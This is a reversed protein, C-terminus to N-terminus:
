FMYLVRSPGAKLAGDEIAEASARAALVAAEAIVIYRQSNVTEQRIIRGQSIEDIFCNMVHRELDEDGNHTLRQTLIGTEFLEISDAWKQRNRSVWLEEVDVDGDYDISWRGVIDQFNEPSAVVNYVNYKDLITRMRNDIEVYPVEWNRGADGPREWKDLVFVTQDKLRVAVIAACYKRIRFGLSILDTKKLKADREAAKWSQKPIWLAHPPVIENFFFRRADVERTSPSTITAYIRNLNIWPADKYIIELGAMAQERDYIDEVKVSFSDFLLGTPEILGEVIKRYEEHVAEAVSGEGPAPANTVQLGRSNTKALGREIVDWLQPGREGPVWNQTEECIAFTPQPGERSRFNATVTEVLHNAANNRVIIRTMGIDLDYYEKAPGDLMEMMYRYTHQCGDQSIAALWILSNDRPKGVAESSDCHATKTRGHECQFHSFQVPGLFECCGMAAVMPSKGTGKAAERYLKTYLWDGNEDVAYAWLLFRAQNPKFVWPDGKEGGNSDPNVLWTSCWDLMRWGLTYKPLGEPLM